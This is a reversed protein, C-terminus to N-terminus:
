LGELAEPRVLLINYAYKPNPTNTSLLLSPPAGDENPLCIVYGLERALSFLGEVTDGMQELGSKNVEAIIFDVMGTKLFDSAGRLIKAEAGETDIKILRVHSCEFDDLLSGLTISQATFNEPSDRTKQNAPHASPDWLAHGGDNDKNLYFTVEGDIDSVVNKVPHITGLKNLDLNYILQDYNETTPEIAIIKGSDGVMASALLSFFGIHAGVDIFTDGPRLVRGLFKSTGAEYAGSQQLAGLISQHVPSDLDFRMAINREGISLNIQLEKM